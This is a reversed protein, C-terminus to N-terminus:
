ALEITKEASAHTSHYLKATTTESSEHRRSSTPGSLRADTASGAASAIPHSWPAGRLSAPTPSGDAAAPHQVSADAYTVVTARYWSLSVVVCRMCTYM